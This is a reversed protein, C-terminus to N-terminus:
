FKNPKPKNAEAELKARLEPSLNTSIPQKSNLKAQKAAIAKAQEQATGQINTYEKVNKNRGIDDVSQGTNNEKRKSNAVPDYLGAGKPGYGSMKVLRWQGNKALTFIDSSTQIKEPPHTHPLVLVEKEDRDSWLKSSSVSSDLYSHVLHEPIWSHMLQSEKQHYGYEPSGVGTENNFEMFNAASQLNTSWSTTNNHHFKSGKGATRYLKYEKVGTDPNIRSEAHEDLKKLMNNRLKGKAQPIKNLSDRYGLDAWRNADKWNETTWNKVLSWQGNKAFVLEEKQMEALEKAQDAAEAEREDKTGERLVPILKKHEEILDKKSPM